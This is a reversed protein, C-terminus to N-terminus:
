GPLTNTQAESNESNILTSSKELLSTEPTFPYAHLSVDDEILGVIKNTMNATTYIWQAIM